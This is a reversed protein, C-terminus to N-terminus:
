GEQISISIEQIYEKIKYNTDGSDKSIKYYILNQPDFIEIETNMSLIRGNIDFFETSILFPSELPEEEEEIQNKAIKTVTYIGNELEFDFDTFTFSISKNFFDLLILDSTRSEEIEEIKEQPFVEERFYTIEGNEDLPRFDTESFFVAEFPVTNSSNINVEFPNIKLELPSVILKTENETVSLISGILLGQRTLITISEPTLSGFVSFEEGLTDSINSAKIFVQM